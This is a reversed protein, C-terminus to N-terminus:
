TAPAALDRIARLSDFQDIGLVAIMRAVKDLRIGPARGNEFRCITSQDVRTMAELQRQSLGQGLRALMVTRGIRQLVRLTRQDHNRITYPM